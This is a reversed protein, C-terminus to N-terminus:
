NQGVQLLSRRRFLLDVDDDTFSLQEAQAGTRFTATQAPEGLTSCYAAAAKKASDSEHEENGALGGGGNPSLTLVSASGLSLIFVHPGDTLPDVHPDM